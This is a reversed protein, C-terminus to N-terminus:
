DTAGVLHARDGLHHGLQDRLVLLRDRPELFDPPLPNADAYASGTSSDRRPKTPAAVSITRSGPGSVSTTTRLMRRPPRPRPAKVANPLRHPRDNHTPAAAKPSAAM